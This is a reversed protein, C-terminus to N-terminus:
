AASDPSPSTDGVIQVKFPRLRQIALFDEKNQTIVMAGIARASLAILADGVLGQARRLPYRLSGQIRRLLHGAEEYTARSPVLIRGAKEFAHVILGIRKRDEPSFAGAYLEMIVVASLYKVTNRQFLLSEHRGENLWDIYVNTDILARRVEAISRRSGDGAAREACPRTM